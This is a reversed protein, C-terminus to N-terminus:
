IIPDPFRSLFRDLRYVGVRGALWRSAQHAPGVGGLLWCSSISGGHVKSNPASLDNQGPLPQHRSSAPPQHTLPRSAPPTLPRSPFPAVLVVPFCSFIWSSTVIFQAMVDGPRSLSWSAHQIRFAAAEGEGGVGLGGCVSHAAHM